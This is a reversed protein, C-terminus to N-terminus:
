PGVIFGPRVNLGRDGYIETVVGECLAKLGGYHGAIEETTPDNVQELPDGETTRDHEAYVSISSVFVYRGVADKLFEASKRVIRPVYGSPDFVVDWTYGALKGIDDVRDGHIETVGPYIGPNTKGRNFLTVEHGADLAAEVLHRGVFQTGGLILVKM